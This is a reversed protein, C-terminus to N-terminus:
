QKFTETRKNKALTLKRETSAREKGYCAPTSSHLLSQRKDARHKNCLTMVYNKCDDAIRWVDDTLGEEPATSTDTSLFLFYIFIFDFGFFSLPFFFSFSLSQCVIGVDCKKLGEVMWGYTTHSIIAMLEKGSLTLNGFILMFNAIKSQLLLGPLM